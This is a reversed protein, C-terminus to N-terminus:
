LSGHSGMLIGLSVMAALGTTPDQRDPAAPIRIVLGDACVGAVLFFSGCLSTRLEDVAHAAAHRTYDAHIQIGGVALTAHGGLAYTPNMSLAAGPVDQRTDDLVTAFSWRGLLTLGGHATLEFSVADRGRMPHLLSSMTLVNSVLTTFADGFPGLGSARDLLSSSSRAPDSTWHIGMEAMPLSLHRASFSTVRDHRGEVGLRFVGTLGGGLGGRLGPLFGIALRDALTHNGGGLMADLSFRATAAQGGVTIDDRWGVLVNTTGGSTVESSSTAVGLVFGAMGVVEDAQAARPLALVALGLLLALSTHRSAAGSSRPHHQEDHISV